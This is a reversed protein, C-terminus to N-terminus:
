EYDDSEVFDGSEVSNGSGDSECSDFFNGSIVLIVLIELNMIISKNVLIM